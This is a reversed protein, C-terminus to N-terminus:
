VIYLGDQLPHVGTELFIYKLLIRDACQLTIIAHEITKLHGEYKVGNSVCTGCKMYKVCKHVKSM